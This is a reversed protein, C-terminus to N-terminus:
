VNLTTTNKSYITITGYNCQILKRFLMPRTTVRFKSLLRKMTYQVTSLKIFNYQSLYDHIEKNEFNGHFIAFIVQYEIDTLNYTSHGSNFDQNKFNYNSNTIMDNGRHYLLYM